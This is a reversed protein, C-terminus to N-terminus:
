TGPPAAIKEYRLERITHGLRQGRQEFKTPPRQALCSALQQVIPTVQRYNPTIRVQLGGSHQM